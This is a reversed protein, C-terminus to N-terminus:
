QVVIPFVATPPGEAGMSNMARIMFYYTGAPMRNLTYSTVPGVPISNSLAVPSNGYYIKYGSLSLNSGDVNRTPATWRLNIRFAGGNGSSSLSGGQVAQFGNKCSILFLSCLSLMLVRKM